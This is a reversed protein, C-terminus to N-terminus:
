EAGLRFVVRRNRARGAETDNSAIPEAEGFARVTLRARDVGADSLYRRVADARQESLRRNSAASGEDDTHGQVEVTVADVRRLVGAAQDLLERSGDTLRSTGTEFEVTGSGAGPGSGPAFVDRLAAQAAAVDANGPAASEIQTGATDPAATGAADGVTLESRLAWPAEIAAGAAREAEAKAEATPARGRLVITGGGSGTRPGSEGDPEAALSSLTVSGPPLAGLADLAGLAAPQWPAEASANVTLSDVVTRGPFAAALRGLLAERASADAVAGTAVLGAPGDRLAFAAPVPEGAVRLRNDVARVGRVRSALAALEAGEDPSNVLGTLVVDRGDLAVDVNDLADGGLAARTATLLEAEIQPGHCRVCVFLLLALGLLSAAWSAARSM